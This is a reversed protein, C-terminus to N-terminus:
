SRPRSWSRRDAKPTDPAATGYGKIYPYLVSM